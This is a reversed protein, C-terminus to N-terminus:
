YQPHWISNDVSRGTLLQLAQLIFETESQGSDKIMKTLAAASPAFISTIDIKWQGDEKNFQFYLPSVQGNSVLQGKATDGDITVEGIEVTTVGGKGVMGADIAYVFFSNGDMKLLEDKPIRHRATLVTFRDMFDLIQVISSDAVISLKLMSEYYDLTNKDVWKIAEEGRSELISLKYGAFCDKIGKEDSANQGFCSYVIFLMLSILGFKRMRM